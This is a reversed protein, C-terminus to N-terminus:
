ASRPCGIPARRWAHDAAPRLPRPPPPTPPAEPPPATPATPATPPRTVPPAAPTRTSPPRARPVLRLHARQPRAQWFADWRGSRRLARLAIVRQAGAGSWRRGAGKTRAQVLSKCGSEVAGMRIPREAAASLGVSGIPLRRALFAPYDLRAANTTVYALARRVAMAATGETATDTPPDAPDPDCV